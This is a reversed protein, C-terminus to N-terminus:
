YTKLHPLVNLNCISLVDLDVAKAWLNNNPLADQLKKNVFDLVYFPASYNDPDLIERYICSEEVGPFPDAEISGIVTGKPFLLTGDSKFDKLVETYIIDKYKGIHHVLDSESSTGWSSLFSITLYSIKQTGYVFGEKAYHIITKVMEHVYYRQNISLGGLKEIEKMLAQDTAASKFCKELLRPGEDKALDM